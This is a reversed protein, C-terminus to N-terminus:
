VRAMVREVVERVLAELDPSAVPPAFSRPGHGNEELGAERWSRVPLAVRKVNVLHRPGINDSTITGGITGTGLMYSPDVGTTFGSAGFIATENVVIRYAPMRNAFRGIAGDDEAHIAATHGDGGYKLLAYATADAEAETTAEYWKLVPCLIERSLPHDRGVGRPRVVLMRTGPPVRIGAMEALRTAYQGVIDVSAPGEAGQPFCMREVAAQEREDCFYSGRAEFEARLRGAIEADVVAAQESACPTGNDFTSSVIIMAAVEGLDRASRHVYVTTNGPGVAYTPKGCSYAALVMQRSGTALILDTRYHRMLADTGELSVETMCQVLDRPAGARVAAEDMVRATEASCRVARPHPACVIANRAKVAILGKFMVTSTPNTVPILGAIVGVPEAIEVYRRSPHEAIVGVTPVHRIFEFLFQSNFLNKFAKHDPRGYGTEEYALDALRQAHETGAQAMAEIVHDVEAQSADAWAEAAAHARLALEDAQQKSREADAM